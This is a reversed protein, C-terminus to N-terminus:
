PRDKWVFNDNSLKQEGRWRYGCLFGGKAVSFDLCAVNEALLEPRKENLWYHGIFVPKATSPYPAAEQIVTRDLELDSDILNTLAYSRYTHHEPSVYWRVRTRTRVHGDKDEFSVGDPLAVEKGKLVTEVPHFLAKRPRCASQLLDPTLGCQPDVAAAILSMSRDDWCAHVARLGDLELWMPLKRFWELYFRLETPTLQDLTQQHQKQNTPNRRRLYQGPSEPDETHYGLANLEHNGMVALAAREEVMPRVIELVQRIKPGRDIFDGLFILQREPHRYVGNIKRYELIDLLQELEDAHGHIDGILDYM